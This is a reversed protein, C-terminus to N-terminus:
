SVPKMAWRTHIVLRDAKQLQAVKDQSRTFTSVRSSSTVHPSECHTEANCLNLHMLSHQSVPHTSESGADLLIVATQPQVVSKVDSVGTKFRDQGSCFQHPASPLPITACHLPHFSRDCSKVKGAGLSAVNPSDGWMVEGLQRLKQRTWVACGQWTTRNETPLYWFFTSHGCATHISFLRRSTSPVM